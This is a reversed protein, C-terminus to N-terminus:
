QVKISNQIATNQLKALNLLPNRIICHVTSFQLVATRNEVISCQNDPQTGMQSVESGGVFVAGGLGDLVEPCVLCRWEM